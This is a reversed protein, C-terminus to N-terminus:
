LTFRFISLDPVKQLEKDNSALQCNYRLATATLIADPLKLRYTKHTEVIKDMLRGDEFDLNIFSGEAVIEEFVTKDKESLDPFSLFEIISVVSFAVFGAANLQQVLEKNGNVIAIVANTDLLYRSGNM